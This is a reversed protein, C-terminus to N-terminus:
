ELKTEFDGEFDSVVKSEGEEVKINKSWSGLTDKGLVDCFKDGKSIKENSVSLYLSCNLLNLISTIYPPPKNSTTHSPAHYIGHINTLNLINLTTEFLSPTFNSHFLPLSTITGSPTLLLLGFIPSSPHSLVHSLISSTTSSPLTITSM